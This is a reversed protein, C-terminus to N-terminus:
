DRNEGGKYSPHDPGRIRNQSGLGLHADALLIQYTTLGQSLPSLTDMSVKVETELLTQHTM